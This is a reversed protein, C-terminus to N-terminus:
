LMHYKSFSLHFAESAYITYAACISSGLWFNRLIGGSSQGLWQLQMTQIQFSALLFINSFATVCLSLTLSFPLSPPLFYM